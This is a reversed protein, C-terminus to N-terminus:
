NISHKSHITVSLITSFRRTGGIKKKTRIETEKLAEISRNRSKETRKQAREETIKETQEAGVVAAINNQKNKGKKGKKRSM